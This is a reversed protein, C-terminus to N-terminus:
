AQRSVASRRRFRRAARPRDPPRNGQATRAGPGPPHVRPHRADDDHLPRSRRNSRKRFVWLRPLKRPGCRLEPGRLWTRWPVTSKTLARNATPSGSQDPIWLETRDTHVGRATAGGTPSVPTPMLAAQADADRMREARSPPFAVSKRVEIELEREERGAGASGGGGAAAPRVRPLARRFRVADRLM